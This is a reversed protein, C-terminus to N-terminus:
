PTATSYGLAEDTIPEPGMFTSETRVSHDDQIAVANGGAGGDGAASSADAVDINANALDQGAENALEPVPSISLYTM